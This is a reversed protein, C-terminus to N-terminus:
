FSGKQGDPSTFEVSEIDIDGLFGGQLYGYGEAEFEWGDETSIYGMVPGHGGEDRFWQPDAIEWDVDNKCEEWIERAKNEFDSVMENLSRRVSEMVLRNLYEEKLKVTRYHKKGKEDRRSQIVNGHNDRYADRYGDKGYEDSPEERKVTRYHKKGKADRRSQIVNGKNDKYADKYESDKKM